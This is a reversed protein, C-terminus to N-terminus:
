KLKEVLKILTALYKEVQNSHEKWNKETKKRHQEYSEKHDNITKNLKAIHEDFEKKLEVALLDFDYGVRKQIYEDIKYEVSISYNKFENENM